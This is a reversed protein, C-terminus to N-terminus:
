KVTVVLLSRLQEDHEWSRVSQAQYFLCLSHTKSLHKKIKLDSNIYVIVRSQLCYIVAYFGIKDFNNEFNDSILCSELM